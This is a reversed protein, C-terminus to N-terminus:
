VSDRIIIETQLKPVKPIERQEIQATLRLISCIGMQEIPQKITTIEPYTISAIPHDDFGLVAIDHPVSIELRRAESIIGAAVEDGNSFIATPRDTGRKKLERLMMRGGEIGLTKEFFDEQTFPIGQEKLAALFGKFRRDYPHCVDGTCYGIRKHGKEILFKTGKYSSEYEDIHIVPLKETGIYRNCLVLKGEDILSQVKPTVTELNTIIIGDLQKKPVLDIYFDELKEHGQTQLIVIHYGLEMAKKEIADVLHAFFPNTIYSIMVGIMKTKQGRLQQAINNPYYNLEEMAKFIKKKTKESVYPHNNTARSVTTVSVKAKAAVDEISAM